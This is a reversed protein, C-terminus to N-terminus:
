LGGYAREDAESAWETFVAFPNDGPKPSPQERVKKRHARVVVKRFQEASLGAGAAEAARQKIAPKLRIGEAASIKAFNARGLVFGAKAGKGAPRKQKPM